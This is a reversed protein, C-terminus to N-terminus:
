RTHSIIWTETFMLWAALIYVWWLYEGAESYFTRLRVVTVRFM